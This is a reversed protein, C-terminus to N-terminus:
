TDTTVRLGSAELKEDEEEEVLGGFTPRGAAMGLLFIWRAARMM